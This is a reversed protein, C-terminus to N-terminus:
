AAGGPRQERAHQACCAWETGVAIAESQPVNLGCVRCRVMNEPGRRAPAGPGQRGGGALKRLGAYALAGIVLWFLVRIM